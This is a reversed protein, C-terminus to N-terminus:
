VIRESTRGDPWSILTTVRVFRDSGRADSLTNRLVERTVKKRLAQRADTAGGGSASGSSKYPPGTGVRARAELILRNFRAERVCAGHVGHDIIKGGGEKLAEEHM